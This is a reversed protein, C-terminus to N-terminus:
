LGLISALQRPKPLNVSTSFNNMNVTILRYWRRGAACHLRELHGVSLGRFGFRFDYLCMLVAPHPKFSTTYSSI